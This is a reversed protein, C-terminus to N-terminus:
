KSVPIYITQKEYLLNMNYIKNLHAIEWMDINFKQAIDALTEGKKVTYIYVEIMELGPIRLSSGAYILNWNFINNTKALLVPEIDYKEAIETLTEGWQIIHWFGGRTHNEGYAIFISYFIFVLTFILRLHKKDM